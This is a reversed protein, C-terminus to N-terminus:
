SKEKELLWREIVSERWYVLRGIKIPQPIQNQQRWRWLTVLNVNLKKALHAPRLLTDNKNM